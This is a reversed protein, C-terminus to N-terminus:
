DSYRSRYEPERVQRYIRSNTELSMSSGRIVGKLLLLKHVLLRVYFRLLLSLLSVFTILSQTFNEHTQRNCALEWQTPGSTHSATQWNQGGSWTNGRGIMMGRLEFNMYWPENPKTWGVIVNGCVWSGTSVVESGTNGQDWVSLAMGLIFVRSTQQHTYLSSWSDQHLPTSLHSFRHTHSLSLSLSLSLCSNLRIHRCTEANTHHIQPCSLCHVYLRLM